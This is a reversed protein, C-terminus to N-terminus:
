VSVSMNKEFHARLPMCVYVCVCACAGGGQKAEIALLLLELSEGREGAREEKEM